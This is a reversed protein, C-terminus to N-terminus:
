IHYHEDVLTQRLAREMQYDGVGLEDNEIALFIAPNIVYDEIFTIKRNYNVWAYSLVEQKQRDNADQFVPHSHFPLLGIPFDPIQPDYGNDGLDTGYKRVSCVANWNSAIHRVISRHEDQSM